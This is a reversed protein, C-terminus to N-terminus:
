HGLQATGELTVAAAVIIANWGWLTFQSLFDSYMRVRCLRQIAYHTGAFVVGLTFGFDKFEFDKEIRADLTLIDDGPAPTGDGPLRGYTMYVDVGECTSAGMGHFQIAVLEDDMGQQM